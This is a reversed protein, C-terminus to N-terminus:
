SSSRVRESLVCSSVRDVVDFCDEDCTDEFTYIIIM